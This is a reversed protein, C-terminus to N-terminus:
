RGCTHPRAHRAYVALFVGWPFHNPVFKELRRALAGGGPLFVATTWGLRTPRPSLDAFWSLAERVTDWRAGRYGGRERKQMYLLSHRNLLGLVIGERGVRWMESVTRQPDAIFCLSTVAAVQDFSANAFPLASGTARLYTAGGERCALDLARADPDLGVVNLEAHAFRRAFYGTGSGVDLLSQGKQPRMLRMMAAFEIDGIWSGRPRHYWADYAAPDLTEPM